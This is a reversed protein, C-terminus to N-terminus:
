GAAGINVAVRCIFPSLANLACIEVAITVIFLTLLYVGGVQHSKL